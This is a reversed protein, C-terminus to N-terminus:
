RNSELNSQIERLTYVAEQAAVIMAYVPYLGATVCTMLFFVFASPKTFPVQM